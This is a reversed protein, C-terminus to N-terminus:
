ITREPAELKFAVYDAVCTVNGQEAVIAPTNGYDPFASQLYAGIGGGEQSTHPYHTVADFQAQM